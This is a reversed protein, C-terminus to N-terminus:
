WDVTAAERYGETVALERLREVRDRSLPHSSFLEPVEFDGRHREFFDTSGGVHGYRAALLELGLRDAAREQERSYRLELTSLGSQLLQTALGDGGVALVFSSLVLRRGLARLHDRHLLHGLEHGLIMAIENESGAQDLLGQFVLIHGGVLAAANVEPSDILHVRLPLESPPALSALEEVLAQLRERDASNKENLGDFLELGQGLKIEFATPVRGAAWGALGGLVLYIAIAAGVVIGAVIAFERLPPRDSINPNDRPLKPVFEPEHSSGSPPEM